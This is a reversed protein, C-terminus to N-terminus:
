CCQQDHNLVMWKMAKNFTQGRYYRKDVLGRFHKTIFIDYM